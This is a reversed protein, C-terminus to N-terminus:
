VTRFVGDELVPVLDSTDLEAAIVVDDAWGQEVLERGSSVEGLVEALPEGVALRADVADWSQAAQTAEPSLTTRAGAGTRLGSSLRDRLAAAVAGAGWLDELGPRLAGDPWREGAPVLVVVRPQGVGRGDDLWRVLDAAVSGRNRLCAAVVRAGQEALVASIASGHPSPLVLSDVGDAARISAPSLSVGSGGADGTAGRGVALTAGAAAAMAAAGDEEGAWPLVDIGVDAAVSVCTTFSLVDVVVACM